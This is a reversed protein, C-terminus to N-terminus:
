SEPGSEQHGREHNMMGEQDQISISFPPASQQIFSFTFLFTIIAGEGVM